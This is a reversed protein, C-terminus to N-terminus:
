NDDINKDVISILSGSSLKTEIIDGRTVMNSDTVARGNILTLSYGRKLTSVPDLVKVLSELSLVRDNQRALTRTSADEIRGIWQALNKEEMSLQHPAFNCILQALHNLHLKEASTRSAAALPIRRAVSDLESRAKSIRLSANAPIAAEILSLRNVEGNLRQTVYTIINRATSDVIGYSNRMCDILFSAVATPTKARVCALEDLVNRDREHGIGVIVPLPFTAVRRALEYNDFGNMDTTAGGGRVIAVCDWLDITQEIFDLAAMVSPATREGQMVAPILVPYFIFGENSSSLQNIFDGYGAAGAASIVAIRQPALPFPLSQNFKAVGERELKELIERRLRELDGLTYSPDIDVVNFSLGYVQHHSVSGQLMVKIGGSVDRGTANFFKRRICTFYSQWINARIKAITQGKENKEILEVYCHGGSVRLDSLEATVWVSNLGPDRRITNGIACTLQTLTLANM